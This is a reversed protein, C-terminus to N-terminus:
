HPNLVKPPLLERIIPRTQQNPTLVLGKTAILGVTVNMQHLGRSFIYVNGSTM